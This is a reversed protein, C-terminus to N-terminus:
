FNIRKIQYVATKIGDKDFYEKIKIMGLSKATNQSAINEYNMYSYLADVDLHKFGYEKVALGAEKAFGNRWYKKNIHYGIEVLKEGDIMQYSLGCDGIFEGNGKLEIAWLGFGNEKYSSICWNLWRNVGNDDYPKLYYKMTEPDSIIKKLDEFDDLTYERLILRKTELIVKKM